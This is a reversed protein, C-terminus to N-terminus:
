RGMTQTVRSEAYKMAESYTKSKRNVDDIMNMFIEDVADNDKQYWSRSTLIQSAFVKLIPDEAQSLVLDKRATPVKAVDLYKVVEKKSTMFKIFDWSVNPSSSNRSVVFTWYNAYNVSMSSGKIQPCESIAFNLHPSRKRIEDAHYSYGLMMASKGQVFNDLSEAMSSNWTYTEKSSDAFATYFKLADVGPSFVEDGSEINQAFTAKTKDYNVMPTGSQMMLLSLIDTAGDINRGTGLSIGAQTIRGSAEIKRLKSISDKLATWTRPSQPIGANNLIDKNYYLALTDVSLPLGYIADGNDYAVVDVFDEQTDAMSMLPMPNSIEQALPVTAPMPIIKNKYRGLWSNGILFIDPGVGEAMSNIILDEYGQSTKKYYNITVNEHLTKYDNIIANLSDSDDWVGWIEIQVLDAKVQPTRCIAGPLFVLAFLLSFVTIIKILNKKM